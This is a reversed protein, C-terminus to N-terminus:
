CPSTHVFSNITRPYIISVLENITLITFSVSVRVKQDPRQQVTYNTFLESRLSEELEISYSPPIAQIQVCCM